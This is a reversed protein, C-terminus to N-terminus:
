SFLVSSHAGSEQAHIVWGGDQQLYFVGPFYQMSNMIVPSPLYIM